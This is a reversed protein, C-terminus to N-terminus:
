SADWGKVDDAMVRLPEVPRHGDSSEAPILRQQDMLALTQTLSIVRRTLSSVAITMHLLIFIVFALGLLYLLSPAYHVGTWRALKIILQPFLSLGLMVIGLALWLIAYQERLRRDRIMYLLVALFGASIMFCLLYLDITM